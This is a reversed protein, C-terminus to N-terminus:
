PQIPWIGGQVCIIFNIARYPIRNEHASNGGVSTLCDANMQGVPTSTSYTNISVGGGGWSNNEPSTSNGAAIGMATHTHAPLESVSLTVTELGPTEGLTFPIGGMNGQGIPVRGRLDPIKFNTIGDGGFRTGLLAYLSSYEAISLTRGDCIFWDEPAYDGGFMRIEGLFAEAM